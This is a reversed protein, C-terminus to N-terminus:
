WLRYRNWHWYDYVVSFMFLIFNM